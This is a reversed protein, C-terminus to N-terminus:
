RLMSHCCDHKVLHASLSERKVGLM